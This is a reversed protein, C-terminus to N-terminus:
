IFLLVEGSIINKDVAAKITSRIEESPKSLIKEIDNPFGERLLGYYLQAILKNPINRYQQFLPHNDSIKDLKHATLLKRINNKEQNTEGALFDIDNNSYSDSLSLQSSKIIPSIINLLEYYENFPKIETNGIKLNLTDNKKVNFKIPSTEILKNDSDFIKIFVDPQRDAADATHEFDFTVSYVGIKNVSFTGLLVETRLNKEFLKVLINNLPLNFKDYIQGVVNYKPMPVQGQVSLNIVFIFISLLKFRNM